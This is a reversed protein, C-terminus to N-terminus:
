TERRILALLALGFAAIAAGTRVHNLGTWDRVYALMAAPAEASAPDILALARNLPVNGWATVAFVGIGYVLAAATILGRGKQPRALALTLAVIAAALAGWFALQFAPNQVHANIAQMTTLAVRADAVALANMVTASYAFFFGAMLGFWLVAASRSVLALLM